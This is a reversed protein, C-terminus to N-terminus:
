AFANNGITVIEEPLSIKTITKNFEFASEGIEKVPLGEYEAPIYLETDTCEGMGTVIYYTKDDSLTYALGESM